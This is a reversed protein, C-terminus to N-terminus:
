KMLIKVKVFYFNFQTQIETKGGLVLKYNHCQSVMNPLVYNLYTNKKNNYNIVFWWDQKHRQKFLSQKAEYLNTTRSSCVAEIKGCEGRQKAVKRRRLYENEELLPPIRALEAKFNRDISRSLTRINSKFRSISAERNSGRRCVLQSQRRTTLFKEERGRCGRWANGESSRRRGAM